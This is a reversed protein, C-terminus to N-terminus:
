AVVRALRGEDVAAPLEFEQQEAYRALWKESENLWFEIVDPTRTADGKALAIMEGAYNRIFNEIDSKFVAARRALAREFAVREVYEGRLIRTKIEWHEAQAAVKRAEAAKKERQEVPDIDNARKGGSGDLRKLWDRAYREVDAMLFLGDGGTAIKGQDRHRYVASKSVKWGDAKLYEVVELINKLTETHGGADSM